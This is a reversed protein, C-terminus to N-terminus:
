RKEDVESLLRTLREAPLEYWEGRVRWEALRSHWEWEDYLSGPWERVLEIEFPSANRLGVLRSRATLQTFGLKHFRECSALYLTGAKRQMLEKRLPNVAGWSLPTVPGARVVARRARSETRIVM